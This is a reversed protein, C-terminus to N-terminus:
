MRENLKNVQIVKVEQVYKSIDMDKIALLHTLISRRGEKYFMANANDAFEGIDFLLLDSLHDLLLKGDETELV